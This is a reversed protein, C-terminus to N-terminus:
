QTVDGPFCIGDDGDEDDMVMGDSFMNFELEGDLNENNEELPVLDTVM